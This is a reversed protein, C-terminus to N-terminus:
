VSLEDWLMVTHAELQGDYFSDLLQLYLCQDPNVLTLLTLCSYFKLDDPYSFIDRITRNQHQMVVSMTELLRVGLIPHQYYAVAEERSGISYFMATNCAGIRKVTSFCVVDLAVGKEQKCNLWRM